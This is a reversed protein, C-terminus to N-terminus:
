WFAWAGTYLVFIALLLNTIIHALAAAFFGCKKYTFWYFLGAMIAAVIRNHEIAFLITTWMLASLDFSKRDVKCWNENQLRRYLYSRFFLEEAPAIVFASGVVRLITLAWGCVAPDYPSSQSETPSPVEGLICWHRYVDCYEPAIWLVTVVLGILVGWLIARLLGVENGSKPELPEKRSFYVWAVFLLIASVITRLTYAWASSRPLIFMMIMWAVYPSVALLTSKQISKIM